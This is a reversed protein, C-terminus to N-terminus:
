STEIEKGRRTERHRIIKIERKTHTYTHTYDTLFVFHSSSVSHMHVTGFLGALWGVM